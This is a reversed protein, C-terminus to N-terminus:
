SGSGPRTDNPSVAVKYDPVNVCHPDIHPGDVVSFLEYYEQWHKMENSTGMCYDLFVDNFPELGVKNRFHNELRLQVDVPIGYLDNFLLRTGMGITLDSQYQHQKLAELYRERHYSDFTNCKDIVSRMDIHKTERLIYKSLEAVIPCGPYQYITSLAKARLLALKKGRRAKAYQKTLLGISTIIDYPDKIVQRDVEDFLLGCFSADSIRDYTNLKIDCGAVTFDETTPSVGTFRFLGDDGEVVGIIESWDLGIRLCTETMMMLNSFGNGLSTNMEGSMRRAEVVGSFYRSFVKNKGQLVNKMVDYIHRGRANGCLMHEYLVFECNEMREASFHCEYASYDTAVYKAGDAFLLNFIYNGRDKVPVHKIFEPQQYLEEEILHFAPGFFVKAVDERAYIGRNMKFDVYQEDKCFLKVKFHVLEDRDNREEMAVIEEHIKIFEARRKQTLKRSNVWEYFDFDEDASVPNINRRRIWELTVSRLKAFYGPLVVKPLKRGMRGNFGRLLSEPSRTDPHPLAAGVYFFPSTVMEIGRHIGDHQFFLKKVKIGDAIDLRKDLSIIQKCRYGFFVRPLGTRTVSFAVLQEAIAM